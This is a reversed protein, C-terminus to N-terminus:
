DVGEREALFRRARRACTTSELILNEYGNGRWSAPEAENNPDHKRTCYLVKSIHHFRAGDMAFRLFMDYDNANKYEPDYYGSRRHLERLYLRSVGLHFWDAFCARFSYDPKNLQQLIRGADDVVLLDSYVVDTDTEELTTVMVSIADPLFYDDAM